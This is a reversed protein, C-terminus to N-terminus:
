GDSEPLVRDVNAYTRDGRETQEVVIMCTGGMLSDMDIEAGPHPASGNIAALWDYFKTGPRLSTGCLGNVKRGGFEGGSITFTLRYVDGHPLGQVLEIGDFAARYTGKSIISQEDVKVIM